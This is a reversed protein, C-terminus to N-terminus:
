FTINAGLRITRSLPYSNYVTREVGTGSANADPNNGSFKTVTLLNDGAIYVSASRFIKKKQLPLDYSLSATQLRIFSADTVTLSNISLAGGYSSPNVGSPYPTHTNAPTWRDLYYKAIRNREFNIPYLSEVVDNDLVRVGQESTFFISLGFRKYAFTNNLGLTFKPFPNGLVTRDQADIKKDGNQDKFEPDGPHANPQASHAIDDGQQFIRSIQYGYFSRMPLGARVLTYNQTFYAVNGGIIQPIYPPLETVKNQLTSMTFTTTWQFAGTTNRSELLLDLGQNRVNGFNVLISTFGTTTPIPKNFLQDRTNKIYYEVSGSVRGRLIGFDVGVNYEETTEWKLDPNPIRAPGVGQVLTNGFVAITSRGGAVFTQQTQYNPIAQNGMQGYSARLKLNSFIGTRAIFPEESLKWGLALSPFVAYKHEDSFRSTGDARISATLLFKNYFSYNVRGLYSVLKNSSRASSVNDGDV